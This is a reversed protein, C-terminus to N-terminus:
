YNGSLHFLFFIELVLRYATHFPVTSPSENSIHPITSWLKWLPCFQVLHARPIIPLNRWERDGWTMNDMVATWVFRLLPNFVLWTCVSSKQGQYVPVVYIARSRSWVRATVEIECDLWNKYHKQLCTIELESQYLFGKKTCSLTWYRKSLM